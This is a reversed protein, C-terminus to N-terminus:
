KNKKTEGKKGKGEEKHHKDSNWYILFQFTIFGNLFVSTMFQMQYLLDDTEFLVTGLRAAAGAFSLIFTFFSLLGTSKNSYNTYIQPLRSM